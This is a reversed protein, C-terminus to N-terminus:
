VWALVTEAGLGIAMAIAGGGIGAVTIIVADRLLELM